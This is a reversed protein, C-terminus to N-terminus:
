QALMKAATQLSLNDSVKRFDSRSVNQQVNITKFFLAKGKMNVRLVTVEWFGPAVAAQKVDFTGGPDLHGLIGGAFKVEERLHGSIEQL